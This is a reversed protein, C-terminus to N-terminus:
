DLLFQLGAEPECDERRSDLDEQPHYLFWSALFRACASHSVVDHSVNEITINWHYGYKVAAKAASAPPTVPDLEGSLFLAPTDSTFPQNLVDTGAEAAYSSCVRSMYQRGRELDWHKFLKLAKHDSYHTKSYDMDFCLYTLFATDSFTYSPAYTEFYDGLAATFRAYSDDVMQRVMLPIAAFTDSSYLASHLIDIVLTATLPVEIPRAKGPWRVKLTQKRTDLTDMFRYFESELETGVANRCLTDTRCKSFVLNLSRQAYALEDQSASADYVAVSDLVLAKTNQPFVREYYRALRTGYSVGYLNLQDTAIGERKFLRRFMEIDLAANYVNYQSLDIGRARYNRGCDLDSDTLVSWFHQQYIEATYHCDLNPESLGVGRNELIMLVRGDAVSFEEYTWFTSEDLPYHPNGLLANGPGGGGTILLPRLTADRLDNDPMVLLYPVRILASGARTYDEPVRLFGCAYRDGGLGYLQQCDQRELASRTLNSDILQDSRDKADDALSLSAFVLLAILVPIRPM